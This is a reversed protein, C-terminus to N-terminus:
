NKIQEQLLQITKNQTEIIELMKEFRENTEKKNVDLEEKLNKIANICVYTLTEPNFVKLDKIGGDSIESVAIPLVDELEQAIIGVHDKNVNGYKEIRNFVIPRIKLLSELGDKFESKETKTRKDSVNTLGNSYRIEGFFRNIDNTGEQLIAYKNTITAFQMQNSGEAIPEIKLQIFNTANNSVDGSSVFTDILVNTINTITNRTLLNSKFDIFSRTNVFNDVNVIYTNDTGLIRLVNTNNSILGGVSTTNASLKYDCFSRFANVGRGPPINYNGITHEVEQEVIITGQSGTGLNNVEYRTFDKIENFITNLPDINVNGRAYLNTNKFVLKNTNGDITTNEILTGGLKVPNTTKGNGQLGNLATIGADLDDISCNSLENCNFQYAPSQPTSVWNTGNFILIDGISPTTIDVDGLDSINCTDLDSCSFPTISQNIWNTGDFMIVQGIFPSTIGVDGINDLSCTNLNECSFEEFNNVLNQINDIQDQLECDNNALQEIVQNLSQGSVVDACEIDNGNYTVCDTTIPKLCGENPNPILEPCDNCSM